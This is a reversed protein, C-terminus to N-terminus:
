CLPVPAIMVLGLLAPNFSRKRAQKRRAEEDFQYKEGARWNAQRAAADAEAWTRLEYRELETM